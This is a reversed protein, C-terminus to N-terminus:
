VDRRRGVVDPEDIEESPNAPHASAERLNASPTNEGRFPVLFSLLGIPCVKPVFVNRPIDALNVCVINGLVIHQECAKGALRKRESSDRLLIREPPRM